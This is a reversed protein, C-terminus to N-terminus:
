RKKFIKNVLGQIRNIYVWSMRSLAIDYVIFTINSLVLLIPLAYDAFIGFDGVDLLFVASFINYVAFIVLNFVILKILWEIIPKDIKEIVAKLIPYFGFLCIYMVKSETEAFLFALFASSFYSLFAWKINTEILVVAVCLGAVAPVAYTLYPFYSVLMIVTALAAMVASFTINKTKNM